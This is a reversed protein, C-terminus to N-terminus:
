VVAILNNWNNASGNSHMHLSVDGTAVRRNDIRFEVEALVRGIAASDVPQAPAHQKRMFIFNKLARKDCRQANRPTFGFAVLIQSTIMEDPRAIEHVARRRQEGRSLGARRQPRQDVPLWEVFRRFNEAFCNSRHSRKNTCVQLEVLHAGISSAHRKCSCSASPNNLGRMMITRAAAM